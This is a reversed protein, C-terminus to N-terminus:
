HWVFYKMERYDLSKLWLGEEPCTLKNATNGPLGSVLLGM